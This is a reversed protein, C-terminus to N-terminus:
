SVFTANHGHFVFLVFRGEYNSCVFTWSRFHTELFMRHLQAVGVPRSTWNSYMCTEHQFLLLLSVLGCAHTM